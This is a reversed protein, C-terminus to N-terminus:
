QNISYVTASQNRFSGNIKFTNSITYLEYNKYVNAFFFFFHSNATKLRNNTTHNTEINRFLSASIKFRDSQIQVISIKKKKSFVFINYLKNVILKLLFRYNILNETNHTHNGFLTKERNYVIEMLLVYM